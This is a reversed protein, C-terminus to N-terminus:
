LRFTIMLDRPPRLVSGFILAILPPVKVGFSKEVLAFSKQICFVDKWEWHSDWVFSTEIAFWKDNILLCYFLKQILVKVTRKCYWSMWSIKKKFKWNLSLISRSRTERISSFAFRFRISFLGIQMMMLFWMVSNVM